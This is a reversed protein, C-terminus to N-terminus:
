ILAPSATAPPPPAALGRGPCQDLQGLGCTSLVLGGLHNAVSVDLRPIPAGGGAFVCDSHDQPNAPTDQHRQDADAMRVSGDVAMFATVNGQATCLVIPIGSTVGVAVAPSAVMFGAPVLIRVALALTALALFAYRLKEAFLRPLVSM